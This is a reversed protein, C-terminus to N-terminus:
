VTKFTLLACPTPSRKNCSTLNTTVRRQETQWGTQTQFVMNRLARQWVAPWRELTHTPSSVHLSTSTTLETCHPLWNDGKERYADHKIPWLLLFSLLCQFDHLCVAFIFSVYFDCLAVAFVFCALFDCLLWVSFVFRCLTCRLRLKNTPTDCHPRTVVSSLWCRNQSLNLQWGVSPLKTTNVLYRTSVETVTAAKMGIWLLIYSLFEWSRGAFCLGLM